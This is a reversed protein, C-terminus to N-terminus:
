YRPVDASSAPGRSAIYAPEPGHAMPPRTRVALTVALKTFRPPLARLETSRTEHTEIQSPGRRVNASVLFATKLVTQPASSLRGPHTRNGDMGAM